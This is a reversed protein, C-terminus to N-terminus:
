DEGAWYDVEADLPLFALLTRVAKDGGPAAGVIVGVKNSDPYVTVDPHVMTSIALYRVPEASDNIVQHAHAKGPPLAVYDGAAIPLEDTGLRLRARGALVYIAEENATHFHFPWSKKGPPVEILSCGLMKGGAAAGLQKRKVAYASGHTQETWSMAEDHVKPMAM